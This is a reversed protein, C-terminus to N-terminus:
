ERVRRVDSQFDAFLKDIDQFEYREEKDGLHRHDGKGEANDYGIARKGNVIYALSYKYGHPKDKRPLTKWVRIEVVGGDQFEFRDKIILKAKPM